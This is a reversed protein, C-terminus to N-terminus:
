RRALRRAHGPVGARWPHGPRRRLHEPGRAAGRRLPHQAAGAPEAGEPQLPPHRRRAGRPGPQHAPRPPDAAGRPDGPAPQHAPPGRRDGGAAPGRRPAVAGGPHLPVIVEDAATLANLTLVGLSPPCDVLVRDYRRALPRLASRLAYERGTRALLVPEAGALDLNAPLLDLGAEVERVAKRADVRGLLVDHVTPDLEDPDLGLSFTLAAQPDLDVLLTAVGLRALAVGLSAVTTTKAVGGKQDAVAVTRAL